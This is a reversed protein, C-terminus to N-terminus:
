QQKVYTGWDLTSFHACLIDGFSFLCEGARVRIISYNIPVNTFWLAARCIQITWKTWRINGNENILRKSHSVYCFVPFCNAAERWMGYVNRWRNVVASDQCWQREYTFVSPWLYYGNFYTLRALDSTYSLIWTKQSKM